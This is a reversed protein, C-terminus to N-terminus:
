DALEITGMSGGGDGTLALRFPKGEETTGTLGDGAATLTYGVETLRPLLWDRVAAPPQPAAFRITVTPENPKADAHVALNRVTSGPPLPVGNMDFDGAGMAEGPVAVSANFLPTNLEFRAADAAPLGSNGAAAETEASCGGSVLPAALLLLPLLVRM